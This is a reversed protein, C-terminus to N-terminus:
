EGMSCFMEWIEEPTGRGNFRVLVGEPYLVRFNGRPTATDGRDQYSVVRSRIVELSLDEMAFVPDQFVERYEEPVTEGYPIEYLRVDYTEARAIDVTDPASDTKEIGLLISDM